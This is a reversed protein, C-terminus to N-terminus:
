NHQEQQRHSWEVHKERRRDTPKPAPAKRIASYSICKRGKLSHGVWNVCGHRCDAVLLCTPKTKENKEHNFKGEGRKKCCFVSLPEDIPLHEGQKRLQVQEDTGVKISKQRQVHGQLREKQQVQGKRLGIACVIEVHLIQAWHQLLASRVSSFFRIIVTNQEVM